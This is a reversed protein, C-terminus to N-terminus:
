GIQRVLVVLLDFINLVRFLRCFRLDGLDDECDILTSRQSIHSGRFPRAIYEIRHLPNEISLPVASLRSALERLRM